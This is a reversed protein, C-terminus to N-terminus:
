RMSTYEAGQLIHSSKNARSTVCLGIVEKSESVVLQELQVTCM